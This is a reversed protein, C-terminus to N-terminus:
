DFYAMMCEHLDEDEPILLIRGAGSEKLSNWLEMDCVIEFTPKPEDDYECECCRGCCDEEDETDEESDEKLAEARNDRLSQIWEEFEEDTMDSLAIINEDTEIDDTECFAINILDILDKECKKGM